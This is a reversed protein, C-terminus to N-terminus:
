IGMYKASFTNMHGCCKCTIIITPIINTQNAFVIGRHAIYDKEGCILCNKVGFDKLKNHLKSVEEETLKVEMCTKGTGKIDDKYFWNIFEDSTMKDISKLLDQFVKAGENM